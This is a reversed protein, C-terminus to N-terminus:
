ALVLCLVVGIFAGSLYEGVKTGSAVVERDKLIRGIEYALPWLVALILGAPLVALGILLGKLGMFIWSFVKGGRELKLQKAIPNVVKSLTNTQMKAIDPNRGMTYAVAHGTQIGLFAIITGVVERAVTVQYGMSEITIAPVHMGAYQGILGALILEPLFTMNFPAKGGKYGRENLVHAGLGGGAMRCLVTTVAIVALYILYQTM